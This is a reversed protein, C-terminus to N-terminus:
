DTLIVIVFSRLDYPNFLKFYVVCNEKHVRNYCKVSKLHNKKIDTGNILDGFVIKYFLIIKQFLIRHLMEVGIRRNCRFYSRESSTYSELNGFKFTSPLLIM